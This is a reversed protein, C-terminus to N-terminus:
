GAAGQAAAATALKKKQKALARTERKLLKIKSRIQKLRKGGGLSTQIEQREKKLQRINQKIGPLESVDM